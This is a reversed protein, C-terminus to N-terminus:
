NELKPAVVGAESAALIYITTRGDALVIHVASWSSRAGEAAPLIRVLTVDRFRVPGVFTANTGRRRLEKRYWDVTDRFGLPSAFRGDDLARARAPLPAGAVDAAYAARVFPGVTGFLAGSAASVLVLALVLTM